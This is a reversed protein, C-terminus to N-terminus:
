KKIISNFIIIFGLLGFMLFSKEQRSGGRGGGIQGDPLTFRILIFILLIAVLLLVIYSYYNSTVNSNGNKYAANITEFQRVMENIQIREQELTKYNTNLIQGQQQVQQQTQQFENQSSNSINMMKQNIDMLKSNINQLQYSYYIAQQVIATSKSTSVINGTGSSLTCSSLTNNFTAGSCSSNSSCSTKCADTTSGSLVSINNQGIFASNSVTTLSNDNSNVVNIYDQYTDTYQTLLTNFQDRLNQM